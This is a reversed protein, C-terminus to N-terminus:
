ALDDASGLAIPRVIAAIVVGALAWEFLASFLEDRVFPWPFRYWINQSASICLWTIAGITVVICWRGCFGSGSAQWVIWAALTAAVVNTLAELGLQRRSMMEEGRPTVIIYAAPGTKYVAALREIEKTQEPKTMADYSESLQPVGYIGPLKVLGDISTILANEDKVRLFARHGWGFIMHDVFGAGFIALGGLLGALLVRGM